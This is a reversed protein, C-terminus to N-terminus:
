DTSLGHGHDDAAEGDEPNRAGALIAQAKRVAAQAHPLWREFDHRSIGMPQAVFSLQTLLEDFHDAKRQITEDFQGPVSLPPVSYPQVDGAWM